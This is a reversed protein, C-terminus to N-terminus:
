APPWSRRDRAVGIDGRGLADHEALDADVHDRARGFHQDDGVLGAIGVPDGGIEQRLGLVVFGRLRDQDGVIRRECALHLLRDFRLQFCQRARFDRARGPAIIPAIM